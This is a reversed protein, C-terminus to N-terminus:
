PVLTECRFLKKARPTCSVQLLLAPAVSHAPLAAVVLSAFVVRLAQPDSPRAETDLM